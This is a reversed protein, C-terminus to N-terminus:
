NKNISDRDEAQQSTFFISIVLIKKKKWLHFMGPHSYQM